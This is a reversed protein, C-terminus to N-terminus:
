GRSSLVREYVALTERATREWSFKAARALGAVSMEQRLDEDDLVRGLTATMDDVDRPDFYCAADGGVEPLSSADSSVVPTGCAMAELVPLGFGEYVSGMVVVTAATYIAPLDADLVYGPFHVVDALGLEDIRRFFSEYLWGRAGVVVLHLDPDDARLRVLAELLRSLNKRPEITGVTLLFREPLAYERRVQTVTFSSTPQFHSAAAEYVVTIKEAPTDYHRVLDRKTSESITIIADTRRVFLPVAANLFWYNLRKHHQPFLKFILDHVTLVTPIHRLPMLLHETAHYLEADPLLRDFGIGVLQGLWVAMRWPKYGLPVSRRPLHRLGALARPHDAENYFLAFRDSEQEALACALSEAYRGLGARSHVAASVDIYTRLSIPFHLTLGRLLALNGM